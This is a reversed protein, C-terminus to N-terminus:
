KKPKLKLIIGENPKLDLRSVDVPSREQYVNRKGLNTTTIIATVDKDALTVNIEKFFSTLDYPTSENGLGFNMVCLVPATGTVSDRYYSVLSENRPGLAMAGFLFAEDTARLGALRRFMKLPSKEDKLQREHNVEAHNENLKTAFLDQDVSSFGANKEASWQMISRYRSAGHDTTNYDEMGMEDGYYTNISGPLTLLLMNMLEGRERSKVRSAVRSTYPNGIEWMPWTKNHSSHFDNVEKLKDYICSGDCTHDVGVLQKNIVFNLEGENASDLHFDTKAQPPIELNLSSFFLLERGASADLSKAFDAIEKLYQHVKAWDTTDTEPNIGLFEVKGFYFGDVGKSLWFKLVDKMSDRVAPHAWNLIAFDESDAWHFYYQQRDGAQKIWHKGVVRPNNNWIFYDTFDGEKAASKIFWEHNPSVTTLPIDMVFKLNQKHAEDILTQLEQMTGLQPDVAKFDLVDYGSGKLTRLLPVPWISTIKLSALQKLRQTIGPIDGVGDNNTDQFSKTWVQYCVKSQWWTRSPKPPCKPSTAVIIIAAAFMAIWALWFLALLFWRLRKWFPDNAYRELEEKTLGIYKAPQKIVVNEM